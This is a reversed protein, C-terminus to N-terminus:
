ECTCCINGAERTRNTIAWKGGAVLGGIVLVGGRGRFNGHVTTRATQWCLVVVAVRVGAGRKDASVICKYTHHEPPSHAFVTFIAAVEGGGGM